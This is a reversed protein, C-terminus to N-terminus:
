LAGSSSTKFMTGEPFISAMFGTGYTLDTKAGNLALVLWSLQKCKPEARGTCGHCGTGKTGRVAPCDPQLVPASSPVAAAEQPPLQAWLSSCWPRVQFMGLLMWCDHPFYCHALHLLIQLINLTAYEDMAWVTVIVTQADAQGPCMMGSSHLQVKFWSFNLRCCCGATISKDSTSSSDWDETVSLKRQCTTAKNRYISSPMQLVEPVSFGSQAALLPGATVAQLWWRTCKLWRCIKDWTTRGLSRSHLLAAEELWHSGFLLLSCFQLPLMALTGPEWEPDWKQNPMLQSCFPLTQTHTLM